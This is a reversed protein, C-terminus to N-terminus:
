FQKGLFSAQVESGSESAQRVASLHSRMGLQCLVDHSAHAEPAAFATTGVVPLVFDRYHVQGKGVSYKLCSGSSFNEPEPDILETSLLRTPMEAFPFPLYVSPCTRPLGPGRMEFLTAKSTLM